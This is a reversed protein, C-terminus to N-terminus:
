PFQSAEFNKHLVPLVYINQLIMTIKTFEKTINCLETTKFFSTKYTSIKQVHYLFFKLLYVSKQPKVDAFNYIKEKIAIAFM